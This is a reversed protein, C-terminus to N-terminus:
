SEPKHKENTNTKVWSHNESVLINEINNIFQKPISDPESAYPGSCTQYLYKEHKLLEATTRYQIWNEHFKCLKSTSEIIAIVAGLIGVTLAISSTSSYGSLLPIATACIIEAFQTLKYIRQNKQSKESFWKIQSDVRKAIYEDVNM